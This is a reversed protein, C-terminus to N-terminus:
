SCGELSFIATNFYFVFPSGLISRILKIECFKPVIITAAATAARTINRTAFSILSLRAPLDPQEQPQEEQGILLPHGEALLSFRYFLVTQMKCVKSQIIIM